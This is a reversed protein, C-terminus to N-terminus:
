NGTFIVKGYKEPIKYKSNIKWINKIPVGWDLCKQRTDFSPCAKGCIQNHGVIYAHPYQKLFDFVIHKLSSDQAATLTNKAKMKKDCGGVYCINYCCINYEASGWSVEYRNVMSDSNWARFTVVNGNLEVIKNYPNVREGHGAPPPATHWSDITKASVNRGEPTAACHLTMAQVKSSHLNIKQDGPNFYLVSSIVAAAAGVIFAAGKAKSAQAM